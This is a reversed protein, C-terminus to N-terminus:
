REEDTSDREDKGIMMEIEEENCVENELGHKHAAEDKRQEKVIAVTVVSGLILVGGVLSVWNPRLGWVAEDMILAFVIQMYVMNLARNSGDSQLSAAVLMHLLLGFIGLFVLLGWESPSPMRFAEVGTVVLSLSTLVVTWAAFHNVNVAPHANKGILAMVVYAAAGGAVGVLAAGIATIRELSTVRVSSPNSPAIYANNTCNKCITFNGNTIEPMYPPIDAFMHWPQSVLVVGLISIAGALQQPITFPVRGILSSAFAAVM